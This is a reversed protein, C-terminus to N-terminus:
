NSKKYIRYVEAVEPKGWSGTEHKGHWTGNPKKVLHEKYTSSVNGKAEQLLKLSLCLRNDEQDYFVVEFRDGLYIQYIFPKGDIVIYRFGKPKRKFLKEDFETGCLKM